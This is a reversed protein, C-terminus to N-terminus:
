SLDVSEFPDIWPVVEVTRPGLARVVLVEAGEPLPEQSWALYTEVGGRVSLQVEGCGDRGRSAVTLDGTRGIVSVDGM